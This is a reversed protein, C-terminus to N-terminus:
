GAAPPSEDRDASPKAASPLECAAHERREDARASPNQDATERITASAVRPSEDYSLLTDSFLYRRWGGFHSQSVDLELPRPLRFSFRLSILDWAEATRM